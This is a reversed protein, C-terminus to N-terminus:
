IKKNANENNQAKEHIIVGNKTRHVGKTISM